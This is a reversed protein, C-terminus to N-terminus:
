YGIEALRDYLEKMAVRMAHGRRVDGADIVQFHSGKSGPKDQPHELAWESWAAGFRPVLVSDIWEHQEAPARDRAQMVDGLWFAIILVLLVGAWFLVVKM